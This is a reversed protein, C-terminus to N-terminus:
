YARCAIEEPKAQRISPIDCDDSDPDKAISGGHTVTGKYNGNELQVLYFSSIKQLMYCSDTQSWDVDEAKESVVFGEGGMVKHVLFDASLVSWQTEDGGRMMVPKSNVFAKIGDKSISVLYKYGAKDVLTQKEHCSLTVASKGIETTKEEAEGNVEAFAASMMFALSFLLIKKM